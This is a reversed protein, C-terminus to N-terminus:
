ISIKDKSRNKDNKKNTSIAAMSSIVVVKVAKIKTAKARVVNRFYITHFNVSEIIPYQIDRSAIKVMSM